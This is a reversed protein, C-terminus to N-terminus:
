KKPTVPVPYQNPAAVIDVAFKKDAGHVFVIEGRFSRDVRARLDFVQKQQQKLANVWRVTFVDNPPSDMPGANAAYGHPSLSGCGYDYKATSDLVQNETIKESSVNVVVIRYNYDRGMSNCAACQM